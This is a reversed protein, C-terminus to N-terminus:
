SQPYLIEYIIESWLTYGKQSPHFHDTSYFDTINKFSQTPTFLDIYIINEQLCIKQISKNFKQTQNNFYINFPPINVNERGIMPISLVAVKNSNKKKIQDIIHNFNKEFQKQSVLTHIDNIGIFLTVLDAKEPLQPLEKEIVDQSLAGPVGLNNLQVSHYDKAIKQSLIYPFSQNITDVGVGATLSDGLAAYVFDKEKTDKGKIEYVSKSNPNPLHYFGVILFFLNYAVFLYLLCASILILIFRM